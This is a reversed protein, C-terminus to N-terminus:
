PTLDWGTVNWQGEDKRGAAVVTGNSCLGGKHEWGAAVQKINKWGGVNLQGASSWGVAVVTGGDELGV